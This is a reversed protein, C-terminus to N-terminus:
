CLRMYHPISPARRAQSRAVYNGEVPAMKTGMV